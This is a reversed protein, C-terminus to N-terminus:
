TSKPYLRLFEREVLEINEKIAVLGAILPLLNDESVSSMNETFVRLDSHFIQIAGRFFIYNFRFNDSM